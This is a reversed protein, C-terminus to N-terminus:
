EPLVFAGIPGFVQVVDGAQLSFLAKKFSSRGRRSTIMLFDKESPSSAITFFRSSGRDDVDTHSLTLQMYQGAQFDFAISRRDFYYAYIGDTLLEKKIFNLSFLTVKVM